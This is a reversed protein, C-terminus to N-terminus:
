LSKGLHFHGERLTLTHGPRIVYVQDHEVRMGDEGQQVKMDTQKGIIEAVLSERDPALHQVSVFAMGSAPPRARFFEMVAALGGASAGIGVVPFSLRPPEEDRVAHATRDYSEANPDSTSRGNVEPQEAAM